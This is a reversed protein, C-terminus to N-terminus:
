LVSCRTTVISSGPVNVLGNSTVYVALEAGQCRFGRTSRYRSCDTSRAFLVSAVAGEIGTALYISMLRAM